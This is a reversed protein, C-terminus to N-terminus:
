TKPGIAIYYVKSNAVLPGVGKAQFGTETVSRAGVTTGTGPTEGFCVVVSWPATPVGALSFPQTFTFDKNASANNSLNGSEWQMLLGGPLFTCGAAANTPAVNTMQIEGDGPNISNEQRWFLNAITQAEKVYLLGENIATPPTPTLGLEPIQIYRHKGANGENFFHNVKLTTNIYTFNNQVQPRSNGLSQGTTPIGTTYTM